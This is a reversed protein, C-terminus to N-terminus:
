FASLDEPEVYGFLNEPPIDFPVLIEEEGYMGLEEASFRRPGSDVDEEDQPELVVLEITPDVLVIGNLTAREVFDAMESEVLVTLSDKPGLGISSEAVAAKWHGYAAQWNGKRRQVYSMVRHCRVRMDTKHFNSTLGDALSMAKSIWVEVQELNRQSRYCLALEICVNCKDYLNMDHNVEDREIVYHLHNIAKSVPLKRYVSRTLAKQISKTEAHDDGLRTQFHSAVNNMLREVAELREVHNMALLSEIVHYLMENTMGYERYLGVLQRLLKELIDIQPELQLNLLMELLEPLFSRNHELVLRNLSAFGENFHKFAIPNDDFLFDWGKWMGNTFDNLADATLDSLGPADNFFLRECYYDTNWIAKDLMQLERPGQIVNWVNENSWLNLFTDVEAQFRRSEPEIVAIALEGVADSESGASAGASDSENENSDASEDRLSAQSARRSLPPTYPEIISAPQKMINAAWSRQNRAHIGKRKLYRSIEDQTVWKDGIKLITKKNIKERDATIRVAEAIDPEKHYSTIGWQKMRKKLMALTPRFDAYRKDLEKVIQELEKGEERLKLIVSKKAEWEGATYQRRPLSAM